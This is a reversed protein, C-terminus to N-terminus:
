DYFDPRAIKGVAMRKKYTEWFLEVVEKAKDVKGAKVLEPIAHTKHSMNLWYKLRQFHGLFNLAELLKGTVIM